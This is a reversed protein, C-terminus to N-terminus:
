QMQVREDLLNEFANDPWAVKKSRLAQVTSVLSEDSLPEFSQVHMRELSWDGSNSRGWLGNGALRVPAWMMSLLEKALSRKATVGSVVKGDLKQLRLSAEEGEGSGYIGVLMGDITSAQQVGSLVGVEEPAAPIELITRNQNRLIAPKALDKSDRRVMKQIKSFADLQKKTGNGQLIQLAQENVVAAVPTPMYFVPEVSGEKIKTLHINEPDGLVVTIQQLYEILRDLPITKPKYGPIAFSIEEYDVM